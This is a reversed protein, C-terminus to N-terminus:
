IAHHDGRRELPPLYGREELVKRWPCETCYSLARHINQRKLDDISEKPTWNRNREPRQALEDEIQTREIISPSNTQYRRGCEICIAIDHEPTCSIGAKCACDAIWRGHNLYVDIMGADIITRENVALWSEAWLDCEDETYHITRGTDHQWRLVLGGLIEHRTKIAM